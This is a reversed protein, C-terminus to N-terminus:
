HTGVPLDPVSAPDVPLGDDVAAWAASAAARVTDVTAAGRVDLRLAGDEVRAASDGCAWWGEADREPAPHPELLSRLDAGVYHPRLGPEALIADRATSM